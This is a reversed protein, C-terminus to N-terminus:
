CKVHAQENFQMTLYIQMVSELNDHIVGFKM